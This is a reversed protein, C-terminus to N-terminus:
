PVSLHASFEFELDGNTFSWRYNTFYYASGVSSVDTVPFLILPAGNSNVIQITLMDLERGWGPSGGGNTTGSTLNSCLGNEGPPASRFGTFVALDGRAGAAPLWRQRATRVSRMDRVVQIFSAACRVFLWLVIGTSLMFLTLVVLALFRLVLRVAGNRARPLGLVRRLGANAVLLGFGTVIVWSIFPFAYRVNGELCLSCALAGPALGLSLLGFTAVAIARGRARYFPEMILIYTGDRGVDLRGHHTRRSWRRAMQTRPYRRKPSGPGCNPTCGLFAFFLFLFLPNFKGFDIKITTRPFRHLITLDGDDLYGSSPARRFCYPPLWDVSILLIRRTLGSWKAEGM